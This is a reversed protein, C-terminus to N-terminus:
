NNEKVSECFEEFSLNAEGIQMYHTITDDYYYWSSISLMNTYNNVFYANKELDGGFAVNFVGFRVEINDSNIYVQYLEELLTETPEGDISIVCRLGYYDEKTLEIEGNKFKEYESDDLATSIFTKAANLSSIGSYDFMDKVLYSIYNNVYNDYYEDPQGVTERINIYIDTDMTKMALNSYNMSDNFGREAPTFEVFEFEVGYKDEAYQTMSAIKESYDIEEKEMFSCGSTFLIPILCIYILKNKIMKKAGLRFFQKWSSIHTMSLLSAPPGMQYDGKAKKRLIWKISEKSNYINKSVFCYESIKTSFKM